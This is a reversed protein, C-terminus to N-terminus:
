VLDDAAGYVLFAPRFPKVAREVDEVLAFEEDDPLAPQGLIPGRQFRQTGLEANGLFTHALDLVAGDFFQMARQHRRIGAHGLM